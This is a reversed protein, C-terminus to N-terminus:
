HQKLRRNMKKKSDFRTEVVVDRANKDNRFGLWTAPKRIRRSKTFGAFEFNAVLKPKVWHLVDGKTDQVKNVFPSKTTELAQLKKLIGPMERDKFGGGSRGVWELQGSANYAGFLISKFSRAHESEAWAGIVFEQRQRTPTKFWAHGRQGPQYSSDKKKSVIGELGLAQVLKFLQVGDEFHDNYRIDPNSGLLKKCIAKRELLPKGMLNYGNKWLIDFVYYVLHGGQASYKQLADFDAHGDENLVCIEGDLVLNQHLKKLAKVVPTYKATYNQGGRTQLTVRGNNLYAIIRYGDWKVEHVYAEHAYVEKLLTALMPAVQQPMATRTAKV